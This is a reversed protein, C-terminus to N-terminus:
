FWAYFHLLIIYKTRNKLLFPNHFEVVQRDITQFRMICTNWQTIKLRIRNQIKINKSNKSSPSM